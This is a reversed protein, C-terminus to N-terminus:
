PAGPAAAGIGLGSVGLRVRVGGGALFARLLLLSVRLRGPRVRVLFLLLLSGLVLLFRRGAVDLLWLVLLLLLAHSPSPSPSEARFLLCRTLYEVSSLSAWEPFYINVPLKRGGKM